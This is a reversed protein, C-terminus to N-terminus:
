IPMFVPTGVGTIMGIVVWTAASIGEGVVLGLFFPLVIRMLRLGGFKLILSKLAWAIMISFWTTLLAYTRPFLIGIPHPVWLIARYRGILMLGVLIVGLLVNVLAMPSLGKPDQIFGNIQNLFRQPGSICGYPDMTVAGYRYCTGVFSVFSVVYGVVIAILVAAIMDRGAGEGKLKLSNMLSPMLAERPDHIIPMQVLMASGLGTANFLRSGPIASLLDTPFFSSQVFLLGSEAVARTIVVLILSFCIWMAIAFLPAMGAAVSWYVLGIFCFVAGGAAFRLNIPEDKSLERSEEANSTIIKWLHTRAGWLMWLTWAIFGGTAMGNEHDIIDPSVADFGMSVRVIRFLRFAIFFAWLSFSVETPLLFAIGIVSFYITITWLGVSSWPPNVFWGHIDWSLPIMPISVYYSHLGNVLHICFAVACGMWMAKSKFFDNLLGKNPERSMEIPIHVLPFSLREREVWQKRLLASLCVSLGVVFGFLIAWTIFVPIWPHWPVSHGIPVGEFFWKVVPGTPDHSPVMWGPIHRSWLAWQNGDTAFYFPAVLMPALYRLLGSSALGAGCILMAWIVLLEQQRFASSPRIKRLASNVVLAIFTFLFLCGVPFHNGYLLTQHLHYDNYPTIACLLAVGIAGVLGSRWTLGRQATKTM